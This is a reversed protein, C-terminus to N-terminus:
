KAIGQIKMNTAESGAVTFVDVDCGVILAYIGDPLLANLSRKAELIYHDSMQDTTRNLRFVLVEGPEVTIKELGGVQTRAIEM